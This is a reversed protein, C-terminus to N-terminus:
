LERVTAPAARQAWAAPPVDPTESRADRQLTQKQQAQVDKASSAFQVVSTWVASGGSIMLAYLWWPIGGGNALPISKEYWVDGTGVLMSTGVSGALVIVQVIARRQRDSRPTVDGLATSKEETLWPLATKVITVFREMALSGALALSALSSLSDAAPM